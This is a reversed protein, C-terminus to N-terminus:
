QIKREEEKHNINAYSFLINQTDLPPYDLPIKCKDSLRSLNQDSLRSLNQDSLRSVTSNINSNVNM